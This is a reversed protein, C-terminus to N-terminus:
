EVEGLLEEEAADTEVPAAKKAKAKKAKAVKQKQVKPKRKPELKALAEGFTVGDKVPVLTYAVVGRGGDRVASLFIGAKRAMFIARRARRPTGLKDLLDAVNVVNSGAELLRVLVRVKEQDNM